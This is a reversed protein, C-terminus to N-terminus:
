RSLRYKQEHSEELGLFLKLGIEHINEEEYGAVGQVDCRENLLETNM